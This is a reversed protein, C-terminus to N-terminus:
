SFTQPLAPLPLPPNASGIKLEVTTILLRTDGINELDHVDWAGPGLATHGTNGVKVAAEFVDGDHGFSRLKGPSVATWFYNLVHVHFPLRQGPTLDTHWVRVQDTESVLRSGVVANRKNRNFEEKRWLPWSTPPMIM